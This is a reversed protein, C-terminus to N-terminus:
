LWNSLDNKYVLFSHNWSGQPIGCRILACKSFSGNIFCTQSRNSLYSELLKLSHQEVGYMHLKKILIEHNITDFPIKLDLFAFINILARDMNSYWQNFSDLLATSTSHHRRFGFQYKSLIGSNSLYGYLQDNILYIKLLRVLQQFFLFQFITIWCLKLARRTSHYSKPWRGIM